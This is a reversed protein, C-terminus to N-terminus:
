DVQAGCVGRSRPTEREARQTRRAKWHPLLGCINWSPASCTARQFRSRRASTRLWGKGRQIYSHVRHLTRLIGHALTSRTHMLRKLRLCARCFYGALDARGVYGIKCRQVECIDNVPRRGRRGRPFAELGDIRKYLRAGPLAARRISSHGIPIASSRAGPRTVAGHKEADLELARENSFNAEIFAV